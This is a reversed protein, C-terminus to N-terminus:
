FDVITRFTLNIRESTASKDKIISHEFYDQTNGRMILLDGSNLLYEVLRPPNKLNVVDKRHRFAFKRTQGLSLSAIVPLKGLEKEKDAHWGMGAEGNEYHNCLVANFIHNIHTEIKEKIELLEPTWEKGSYVQNSYSYALNSHYSIKRKTTITENNFIYTEAEFNTSNKLTEFYHQAEKESLFNPFHEVDPLQPIIVKSINKAVNFM